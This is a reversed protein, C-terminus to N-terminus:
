TKYPSRGSLHSKDTAHPFFVEGRQCECGGCENLVHVAGRAREATQECNGARVNQKRQKANESSQPSLERERERGGERWGVLSVVLHCCGDGM